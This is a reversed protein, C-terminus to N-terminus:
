EPVWTVESIKFHETMEKEGDHWKGDWEIQYSITPSDKQTCRVQLSVVFNCPGKWVIPLNYPQIMPHLRVVGSKRVSCIDFDIKKGVTHQTPHYKQHRCVIPVDGVWETHWNTGVAPTQIKVLRVDLNTAPHWRRTNEVNLHFYRSVDALAGTNQDREESREGFPDPQTIHLKPPLLANRFWDGFLAVVVTGVTGIAVFWTVFLYWWWFQQETM